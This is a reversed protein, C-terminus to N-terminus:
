KKEIIKDPPKMRVEIAGDPEEWIREIHRGARIAWALASVASEIRQGGEAGYLAFMKPLDVMM